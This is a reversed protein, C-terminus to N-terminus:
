LFGSLVSTAWQTIDTPLNTSRAVVEKVQAPEVLLHMLRFEYQAATSSSAPLVFELTELHQMAKMLVPRNVSRMASQSNMFNQYEKFVMEFSFPEGDYIQTLHLMAIVLCLEQVSLGKLMAVKSDVAMAKQSEVIHCAEIHMCSSTLQKVPLLLLHKLARIDKTTTYLRKLANQVATEQMLEKVSGNWNDRFQEDLVHNPLSLLDVAIDLYNEFTFDNFLHLQRHSFRSKVRKELLEVADLRCTVGIVAIPVQASQAVDFFNYLLTQNKRDCFLDFEEIVLIIPMSNNSGSKLSALLFSLNDAFSGFVRNGVVNELQLQRTMDKLAVCDDTHVLGNLEVLLFSNKGTEASVDKIVSQVVATKGSGRPGVLLVTNSEGLTIVRLM